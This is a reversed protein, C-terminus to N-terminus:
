RTPNYHKGAADCSHNSSLSGEHVHYSANHLASGNAFVQMM